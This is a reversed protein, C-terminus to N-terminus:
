ERAGGPDDDESHPADDDSDYTLTPLGRTPQGTPRGTSLESLLLWGALVAIFVLRQTFAIVLAVGATTTFIVKAIGAARNPAFKDLLSQLLHGGDLPRIPLWNLLGWFVNVYITSNLIFRTLPEYPGFQRAAIWVLGGFLLGTASGAAAILARRGPTVAGDPANWRTLGGLGNLEIAVTSGYSRATVAHGMEHILISIFVIAIWAVTQAPSGVGVWGILAAIILFSTRVTVPMGMLRFRLM